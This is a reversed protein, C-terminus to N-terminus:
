NKVDTFIRCPYKDAYMGHQAEQLITWKVHTRSPASIPEGSSGLLEGNIVDVPISGQTLTTSLSVPESFAALEKKGKEGVSVRSNAASGLSLLGSVKTQDFAHLQPYNRRYDRDFYNNGKIDGAPVTFPDKYQNAEEVRAGPPVARFYKVVPNGSSRNPVLAFIQRVKEWIGNSGSTYKKWIPVPGGSM